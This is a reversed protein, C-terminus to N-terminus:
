MRRSTRMTRTRAASRWTAGTSLRQMRASRHWAYAERRQPQACFPSLIVPTGLIRMMAAETPHMFQLRGDRDRATTLEHWDLPHMVIYDPMEWVDKMITFLALSIYDLGWNTKGSAAAAHAVETFGSKSFLGTPEAGGVGIMLAEELNTRIENILVRTARGDVDNGDEIQEETVEFYAIIKEIDVSEEVWKPKIEAGAENEDRWGRATAKKADTNDSGGPQLLRTEPDDRKMYKWQSTMCRERPLIDMVRIPPWIAEVVRDSYDPWITMGGEAGPAGIGATLVNVPAQPGIIRDLAVSAKDIGGQLDNAIRVIMSDQGNGDGEPLFKEGGHEAAQRLWGILRERQRVEPPVRQIANATENAAGESPRSGGNREAIESARDKAELSRDIGQIDRMRDRLAALEANLMRFNDRKTNKDDGDLGVAKSWDYDATLQEHITEAKGIRDKLAEAVEDRGKSGGFKPSSRSTRRPPISNCSRCSRRCRM